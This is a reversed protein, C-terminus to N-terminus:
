PFLYEPVAGNFWDWFSENEGIGDIGVTGVRPTGDPDRDDMTLFYNEGSPPCTGFLVCGNFEGNLARPFESEPAYEAPDEGEFMRLIWAALTTTLRDSWLNFGDSELSAHVAALDRVGPPLPEGIAPVAEPGLATPVTGWLVRMRADFHEYRPLDRLHQAFPADHMALYLYGLLYRGEIEVLALGLLEKRLAALFAPCREAVPAWVHEVASWLDADASVGWPNDAALPLVTESGRLLLGRLEAGEAPVDSDSWGRAILRLERDRSLMQEIAPADEGALAARWLSKEEDVEM